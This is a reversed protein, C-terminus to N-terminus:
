SLVELATSDLLRALVVLALAAAVFPGFREEVRYRPERFRVRELADIGAYVEATASADRATWFAGGTAEALARVPGTDIPLFEGARNQAGVGAAIAYVRVGLERCLAAARAPSVSDPDDPSAVTEEGDTFLIVVKSPAESARLIQAARAVALGIGTADEPGDPQVMEVGALLKELSAHSLTLPCVVDAYRAFGVLGIRDDPRGAIFEAAADRAVELRTRAPDMDTAAMSSSRDLAILVDIGEAELPLPGRVAPRALALVALVLGLAHLARPLFALRARLTRPLDAAFPAPTFRLARAGNGPRRLLALAALAALWTPELFVLGTRAELWASM